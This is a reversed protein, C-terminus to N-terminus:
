GESIGILRNLEEPDDRLRASPGDFLIRGRDMVVARPSIDLALRTNQEVLILTLGEMEALRKM